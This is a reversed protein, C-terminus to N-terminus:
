KKSQDKLEKVDKVLSDLVKRLEDNKTKSAKLDRNLQFIYLHAEEVEKLLDTYSKGVDMGESVVTAEPEVSPLHHNEKTFAEKVEMSMLDYDDMFVEDWSNSPKVRVEEFVGKGGVAFLYGTPVSTTGIGVGGNALLRMIEVDNIKFKTWSNKNALYSWHNDGDRLGFQEGDANGYFRGYEIGEKDRLIFQTSTSNNSNWYLKTNDDGYLSQDRLTITGGSIQAHSIGTMLFFM